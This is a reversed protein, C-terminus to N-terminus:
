YLVQDGIQLSGKTWEPLIDAIATNAEVSVTRIKGVLTEGRYVTLDVGEVLQDESGVNLVVFNWAQNIALIKGSLSIPADKNKMRTILVELEQVRSRSGELLDDIIKKERDLVELKENKNSLDSLVSGLARGGLQEKMTKLETGKEDLETSVEKLKSEAEALKKKTTTMETELDQVKSNSEVLEQEKVKLKDQADKLNNKTTNFTENAKKLSTVPEGPNTKFDGRYEVPSDAASLTAEVGELQKSYQSKDKSLLFGVVAATVSAIIAIISFVKGVTSM